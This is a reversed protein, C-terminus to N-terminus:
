NQIDGFQKKKIAEIKERAKFYREMDKKITPIM